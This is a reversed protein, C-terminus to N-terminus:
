ISEDQQSQDISEVNQSYADCTHRSNGCSALTTIVALLLLVKKMIDM